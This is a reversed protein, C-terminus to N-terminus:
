QAIKPAEVVEAGAPVTFTFFDNELGTDRKIDSFRLRTVNGLPDRM